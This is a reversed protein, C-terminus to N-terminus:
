LTHQAYSISGRHTQWGSNGTATLLSGLYTAQTVTKGNETSPTLVDEEHQIRMHVTKDWHPELGYKSAVDILCHLYEQLSNTQLGALFTDDAYSIDFVLRSAGKLFDEINNERQRDVDAFIVSLVLIFLYPSLLCGQAIGSKQPKTSSTVGCDAISFTRDSYIAFIMDLFESPFM